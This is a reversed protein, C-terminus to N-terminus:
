KCPTGEKSNTKTGPRVEEAAVIGIGSRSLADAIPPPKFSAEVLLAGYSAGLHVENHWSGDPEVPTMPVDGFPQVYWQDTRTYLVVNFRDPNVTGTVLGAICEMPDLDSGNPPVHTFHLRARLPPPPPVPDPSKNRPLSKILGFVGAILAALVAAVVVSNMWSGHDPKQRMSDINLQCGIEALM